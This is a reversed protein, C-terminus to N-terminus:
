CKRLLLWCPVGIKAADCHVRMCVLYAHPCCVTKLLGPSLVGYNDTDDSTTM